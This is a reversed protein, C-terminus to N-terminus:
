KSLRPRQPVGGVPRKPIENDYLIFMDTTKAWTPYQSDLDGYIMQTPSYPTPYFVCDPIKELEELEKFLMDFTYDSILPESKVYYWYCCKILKRRLKEIHSNHLGEKITKMKM